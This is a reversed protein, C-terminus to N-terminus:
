VSAQAVPRMGSSGPFKRYAHFYKYPYEMEVTIRKDAPVTDHFHVQEWSLPQAPFAHKINGSIFVCNIQLGLMAALTVRHAGDAILPQEDWIEVVPPAMEMGDEFRLIGELKLIDFGQKLLEERQHFLRIVNDRLIYKATPVLNLPEVPAVWIKCCEYVPPLMHSSFDNMGVVRIDEFFRSHLYQRPTLGGELYRPM